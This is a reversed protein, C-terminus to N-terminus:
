FLFMKVLYFHLPSILNQSEGMLNFIASSNSAGLSISAYQKYLSLSRYIVNKCSFICYKAKCQIILVSVLRSVSECIDRISSKVSRIDVHCKNMKGKQIDLARLLSIGQASCSLFIFLFFFILCERDM